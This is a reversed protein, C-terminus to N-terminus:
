VHARGIQGYGRSVIGVRWGQAQLLPILAMILPTKGTGGVVRNGVVLVPVTLRTAKKLGVRYALRKIAVVACYLWELARTWWPPQQGQLWFSPWGTTADKFPKM